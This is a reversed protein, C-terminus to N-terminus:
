GLLRICYYMFPASIVVGDFRDMFGGHGPLITGSDKKQFARKILSECLDGLQGSVGVLLPAVVVFLWSVERFVLLKYLLTVCYAGALGGWAGEWTKKPSIMPYLKQRGRKLGVFYAASDGVWNILFFLLLWLGGVEEQRILLIYLPLVGLYLLGFISYVGERLHNELGEPHRYATLLFYFFLGLFAMLLLGIQLGPLIVSALGLLFVTGLIVNRKDLRDPLSLVMELFEHTMLLSLGIVFFATGIEGLGLTMGLLLAGGVAGTIVRKKLEPKM